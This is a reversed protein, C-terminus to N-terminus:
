RCKESPARWPGDPNTINVSLAHVIHCRIYWQYMPWMLIWRPSFGPYSQHMFNYSVSYPNASHMVTWTQICRPFIQYLIKAFHIHCLVEFWKEYYPSNLLSWKDHASIGTEFVSIFPIYEYCYTKRLWLLYANPAYFKPKWSKWTGLVWVAFLFSFM